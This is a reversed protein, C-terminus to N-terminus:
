PTLGDTSHIWRGFNYIVSARSHKYTISKHSEGNSFYNMFENWREVNFQKDDWVKGDRLNQCDSKFYELLTNSLICIEELRDLLSKLQYIDYSKINYSDKLEWKLERGKHSDICHPTEHTNTNGIKLYRVFHTETKYKQRAKITLYFKERQKETDDNNSITLDAYTITQNLLFDFNRETENSNIDIFDISLLKDKLATFNNDRM